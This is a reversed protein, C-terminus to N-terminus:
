FIHKLIKNTAGSNSFIYNKAAEGARERMEPEGKFSEMINNFEEKNKITFGGGIAILDRAERFKSYNPGFIVPIGYVAAEPL